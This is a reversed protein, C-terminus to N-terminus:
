ARKPYGKGSRGEQGIIGTWSQLPARCSSSRLMRPAASGSMVADHQRCMPTAIPRPSYLRPVIGREEVSRECPGLPRGEHTKSRATSIIISTTATQWGSGYVGPWAYVGYPSKGKEFSGVKALAAYAKTTEHGFNAHVRTPPDNGWPYIRGDTGRAAKEWEAETSLRKGAWRCYAAADHWDVGLVPKEDNHGRRAEQWLFPPESDESELFKAYHAVTVEYRDIYFADLSVRHTPQENPVAGDRGMTFQGAPILVMSARDKSALQHDMKVVVTEADTAFSLPVVLLIFLPLLSLLALPFTMTKCRSLTLLGRGASVACGVWRSGAKNIGVMRTGSLPVCSSELRPLVLFYHSGILTVEEEEVGM